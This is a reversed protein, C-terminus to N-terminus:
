FRIQGRPRAGPRRNSPEEDAHKLGTERPLCVSFPAGRPRHGHAAGKLTLLSPPITKDSIRITKTSLCHKNIRTNRPFLRYTLHWPDRRCRRDLSLHDPEPSSAPHRHGPKRLGRAHSATIGPGVSHPVRGAGWSGAPHPPPGCSPGAERQNGPAATKDTPISPALRVRLDSTAFLGKKKKKRPHDRNHLISRHTERCLVCEKARQTSNSKLCTPGLTCTDRCSSFRSSSRAWAVHRSSPGCRSQGPREEWQPEAAQRAGEQRGVQPRGERLLNISDLTPLLINFFIGVKM